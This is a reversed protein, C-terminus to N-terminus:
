GRHGPPAAQPQFLIVQVGPLGQLAHVILPRFDSWDLGGNGCDLRPIAVSHTALSRIHMVLDELGARISDLRSSHRWHKKTPFPISFPPSVLRQVIQMKGITVAGAKCARKYEDFEDPFAKEFQLAIGKGMVGETHVTNVLADVDAALIYESGREIQM